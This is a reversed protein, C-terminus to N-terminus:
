KPFNGNESRNTYYYRIVELNLNSEKQLRDELEERDFYNLTLGENLGMVQKIRDINEQLNM